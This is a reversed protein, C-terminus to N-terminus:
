TMYSNHLQPHDGQTQWIICNWRKAGVSVRWFHWQCHQYKLSLVGWSLQVQSANNLINPNQEETVLVRQKQLVFLFERWLVTKTHSDWSILVCGNVCPDEWFLQTEKNRGSVGEVSYCTASVCICTLAPAIGQGNGTSTACCFEGNEEGVVMVYSKMPTGHKSTGSHNSRHCCFWFYMLHKHFRCSTLPKTLSIPMSMRPDKMVTMKETAVAVKHYVRGTVLWLIEEPHRKQLTLSRVVVDMGCSKRLSSSQSGPFQEEAMLLSLTDWLEINKVWLTFLTERLKGERIPICMLFLTFCGAKFLGLSRALFYVVIMCIQGKPLAPSPIFSSIGSSNIKNEM